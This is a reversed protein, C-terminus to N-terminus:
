AEEAIKDAHEPRSALRLFLKHTESPRQTRPGGLSGCCLLSQSAASALCSWQLACPEWQSATHLCLRRAEFLLRSLLGDTWVEQKIPFCQLWGNHHQHFGHCASEMRWNVLLGDPIGVHHASIRLCNPSTASLVAGPSAQLAPHPAERYRRLPKQLSRPKLRNLSSKSVALMLTVNSARAPGAGALPKDFYSFVTRSMEPSCTLTPQSCCTQGLICGSSAQAQPHRQAEGSGCPLITRCVIALDM